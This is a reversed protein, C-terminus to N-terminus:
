TATKWLSYNNKKYTLAYVNALAEVARNVREDQYFGKSIKSQLMSNKKGFSTYM